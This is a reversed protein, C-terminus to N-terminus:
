GFSEDRHRVDGLEASAIASGDALTSRLAARQVSEVTFSNGLGGIVGLSCGILEGVFPGLVPLHESARRSSFQGLLHCSPNLKGSKLAASQVNGFWMGICPARLLRFLLLHFDIMTLSTWSFCAPAIGAFRDAVYGDDLM